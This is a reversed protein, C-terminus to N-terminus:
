CALLFVFLYMGNDGAVAAKGPAYFHVGCGSVNDPVESVSCYSGEPVFTYSDELNALAAHPIDFEALAPAWGEPAGVNLAALVYDIHAQSM